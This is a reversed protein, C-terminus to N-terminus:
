SIQNENQRNQVIYEVRVSVKGATAAAVTVNLRLRIDEGAGRFGTLTLATRAATKIDVASGYRTASASDGISVTAATSTAYATEVTIDGGIVVAGTPLPIVGFDVNSKVATGGFDQTVGNVDVMTDNYNFTFEAVLPYQGGRTKKILAM